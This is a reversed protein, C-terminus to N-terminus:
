NKKSNFVQRKIDSSQKLAGEESHQLVCALLFLSYFWLSEM